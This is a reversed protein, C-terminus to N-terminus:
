GRRSRSRFGLGVLGLAVLGLMSPEPIATANIRLRMNTNTHGTLTRFDAGTIIGNNDNDRYFGNAGSGITPLQDRFTALFTETPVGNDLIRFTFGLTSQGLNLHIPIELQAGTITFVTNGTTSLAPLSYTITGFSAGFPSGAGSTVSSDYGDFLEIVAVLQGAATNQAGLVFLSFDVSDVAWHHNPNTTQVIGTAGDGLLFRPSSTTTTSGATSASVSDWIIDANASTVVTCSFLVLSVFTLFRRRVM